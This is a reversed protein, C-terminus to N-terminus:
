EEWRCVYDFASPSTQTCTVTVNKAGVIEVAARIATGHCQAFLLPSGGPPGELRLRGETGEFHVVSLSTGRHFQDWRGTVVKVIRKVGLVRFLMAYIPGEIIKRNARYAFEVYAEPSPFCLDACALFLAAVKVESIWASPLPPRKVFEGVGPPLSSLHQQIPVGELFSQVISGKQQM